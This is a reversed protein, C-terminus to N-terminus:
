QAKRWRKPLITRLWSFNIMVTERTVRIILYIGLLGIIINAIWMGVFPSTFNRDALKEGGILCAWYVVFFALSIGASVGFTGRKVIVGLPAGVMVFVLCAFPISYKKYIEVLYSNYTRKSSELTGLDSELASHQLTMTAQLATGAPSSAPPHMTFLNNFQNLATTQVRQLADQETRGARDAENRMTAINMEREGRPQVADNTRVFQFGSAPMTIQHRQFRIARYEEVNREDYQHIEGDELQFVLTSYDQTFSPTGRQATVIFLKGPQSYDYITMGELLNSNEHTKLALISYGNIANSFQGAEIAFTPKKQQIDTFLLRAKHNADPLVDNDFVFIGYTVLLGGLLAPIMMRFASMGSAKMATVENTSSLNGFAMLSAVLVGMPVALVLMWALNLVILQIIVWAGIGRGVLSDINQMLYQLLFLTMVILTSFIFPAIHARLIYYWLKFM